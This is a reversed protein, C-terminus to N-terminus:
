AGPQEGDMPAIDYARDARVPPPHTGAARGRTVAYTLAGITCGPDPAVIADLFSTTGARRQLPDGIVL